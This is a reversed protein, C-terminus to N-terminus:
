LSYHTFRNTMALKHVTNCAHLEKEVLLALSNAICIKYQIEPNDNLNNQPGLIVLAHPRLWKILTVGASAAIYPYRGLLTIAM